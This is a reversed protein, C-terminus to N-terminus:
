AEMAAYFEILDKLIYAHCPSDPYKEQCFCGLVVDEGRSLKDVFYMIRSRFYPDNELRKMTLAHYRDFGEQQSAVRYEPQTDNEVSFPNGLLSYTLDRVLGVHTGSKQYMRDHTVIVNM